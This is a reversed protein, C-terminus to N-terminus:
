YAYTGHIKELDENTLNDISWDKDSKTLNINSTYSVRDKTKNLESIRYELVKKNDLFGNNNLEEPNSALYNNVNNNVKYYDYVEIQVEVVAHDGDITEDKIEYKLDEYQHIFVKKYSEIMNNDSTLSNVYDNLEGMINDSTKQYNVFMKKVVNSPTNAMCGSLFLIFSVLIFIINKKM